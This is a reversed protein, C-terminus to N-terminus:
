PIRTTSGGRSRSLRRAYRSRNRETPGTCRSGSGPLRRQGRLPSDADGLRELAENLCVSRARSRDRRFQQRRAGGDGRRPRSSEPRNVRRALEIASLCTKRAEALDGTRAQAEGLDCLLEAKLPEDGGAKLALADIANRLHHAAEEYAFQREAMRAAQRSYDAALEADGPSAGRCYHYAIEALPPPEANLARIAEAVAHHLTRRRAAPLADYLAERIM